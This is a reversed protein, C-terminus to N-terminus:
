GKFVVAPELRLVKRISILSAILCIFIIATGTVALVQWPLRFGVPSTRIAFGLLCAMGTGLGFGVAGVYGAQFFIMALIVRNTAGMAKLVGFHRLNELTFNYFTQGAILTGILFSVLVSLLFGIIVGTETIFYRLTRAIFDDVSYAALGTEQQINRAVAETTWGPQTQVLIFTLMKREAPAFELARHYTTYVVPLGQFGRDAKCIGVVVARHDNLELADGIRLPIKRGEADVHGLKEVASVADVVVADASRLDSLKGDMMAPPGGFLTADDIGYLAVSEFKGDDLRTRITGKYLPGAWAVGQVSRVRALQGDSMPKSDDIYKVGPDMVWIDAGAILIGSYTQETFGAFTALQQTLLFSAFVVGAIIGLYRGTEGTLMQLAIRLM